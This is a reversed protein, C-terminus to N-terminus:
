ESRFQEDTRFEEAFATVSKQIADKSTEDEILFRRGDCPSPEQIQGTSDSSKSKRLRTRGGIGTAFSTLPAFRTAGSAKPM